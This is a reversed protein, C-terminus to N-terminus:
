SEPKNTNIAPTKRKVERLADSGGTLQTARSFNIDGYVQFMVSAAPELGEVLPASLFEAILSM